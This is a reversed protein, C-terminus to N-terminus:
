PGKWQLTRQIRLSMIVYVCWTCSPRYLSELIVTSGGSRAKTHIFDAESVSASATGVKATRRDFRWLQLITELPFFPFDRSFFTEIKVSTFCSDLIILKSTSRNEEMKKLCWKLTFPDNKPIQLNLNFWFYTSFVGDGRVFSEVVLTGPRCILIPPISTGNPFRLNRRHCRPNTQISQKTLTQNSVAFVVLTAQLM